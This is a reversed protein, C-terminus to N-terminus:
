LSHAVLNKFGAAHNFPSHRSIKFPGQAQVGLLDDNFFLGKRKKKKGFSIQAASQLSSEPSLIPGRAAHYMIQYSYEIRITM